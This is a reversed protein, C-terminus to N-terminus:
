FMGYQVLKSVTQLALSCIHWHQDDLLGLVIEVDQATVHQRIDESSTMLSLMDHQEQFIGYKVLKPVNQLASLQVHLDHNSLYGLVTEIGHMTIHQRIDELLIKLMLM